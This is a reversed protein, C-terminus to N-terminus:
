SSFASIQEELDNISRGLFDRKLKLKKVVDFKGQKNMKYEYNQLERYDKRLRELQSVM